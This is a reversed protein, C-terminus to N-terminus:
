KKDEAKKAQTKYLPIFYSISYNFGAGFSNAYTRDFGPIYLNDFGEPRKNSVLNKLRVSFGLFLNDFLEAKVGGVVEIWHASLGSFEQNPTIIVDGFYNSTGEGNEIDSNQYIRYSNLTQSFSSVGYRVGVYIMNEMDLWNEYANYDFGVKFYSGSATFNLVPDDVTMEENGIEGAVYIKKSIRYDGVIEFGQYNNDYMSRTLRHLDVGLRIGYRYTKPEVSTTDATQEQAFASLSVFLLLISSIYASM